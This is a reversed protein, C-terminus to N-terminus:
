RTVVFRFWCVSFSSFTKTDRCTLRPTVRQSRAQQSARWLRGVAPHRAIATCFSSPTIESYM